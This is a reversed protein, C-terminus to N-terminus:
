EDSFDQDFGEWIRNSYVRTGRILSLPIFENKVKIGGEDLQAKLWHEARFEKTKTILYSLNNITNCYCLMSKYNGIALQDNYEKKSHEEAISGREFSKSPILMDYKKDLIDNFISNLWIHNSTMFDPRCRIYIDYKKNNDDQTLSFSKIIGDLM